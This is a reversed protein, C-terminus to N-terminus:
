REGRNGERRLWLLWHAGACVFQPCKGPERAPEARLLTLPREKAADQFYGFVTQEDDHPYVCATSCHLPPDCWANCEHKGIIIGM